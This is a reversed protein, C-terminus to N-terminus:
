ALCARRGAGAAHPVIGPAHNAIQVGPTEAVARAREGLGDQLADGRAAAQEHGLPQRPELDLVDDPQRRQRVALARRPDVLGEAEVDGWGSRALDGGRGVAVVEVVRADGRHAFGGRPAEHELQPVAGREGELVHRQLAHRQEEALRELLRLRAARGAEVEEDQDRGRAVGAHRREVAEGIAGVRLDAHVVGVGADAGQLLQLHDGLGAVVEGHEPQVAVEVGALVGHLRDEVVAGEGLLQCGPV